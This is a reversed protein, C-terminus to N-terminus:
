NCSLLRIWLFDMKNMQLKVLNTLIKNENSICIPFEVTKQGEKVIALNDIEITDTPMVTGAPVLTMLQDNKTIYM